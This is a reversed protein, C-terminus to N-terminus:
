HSSEFLKTHLQLVSDMVFDAETLQDARHTSVIGYVTAGAAVGSRIGAPADEIVHADRGTVGILSAGLLYPEPHPKGHTIDDSTVFVKPIRIGSAELRAVALPRQCSTVIGWNFDSDDLATLLDFVGDIAVVGDVDECENRLHWQTWHESESLRDPGLLTEIFAKAPIGHLGDLVAIYFGAEVALRDWCRAVSEASNVLTGDLDFLVARSTM